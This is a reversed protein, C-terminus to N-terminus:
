GIMMGMRCGSRMTVLVVGEGGSLSATERFSIQGGHILCM